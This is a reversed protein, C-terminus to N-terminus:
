VDDPPDGPNPTHPWGRVFLPTPLSLGVGPTLVTIFYSHEDDLTFVRVAGRHHPGRGPLHTIRPIFALLETSRVFATALPRNNLLVVSAPVFGAGSM